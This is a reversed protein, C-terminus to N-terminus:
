RKTIEYNERSDNVMTGEYELHSLAPRFNKLLSVLRYPKWTDWVRSFLLSRGKLRLTQGRVASPKKSGLTVAEPEM